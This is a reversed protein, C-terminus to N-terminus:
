VNKDEAVLTAVSDLQKVPVLVAVDNNVLAQLGANKAPWGRRLTLGAHRQTRRFQSHQQVADIPGLGLATPAVVSRRRSRRSRTSCAPPVPRGSKRVRRPIFVIRM